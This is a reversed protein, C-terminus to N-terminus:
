ADRYGGQAQGTTRAAARPRSPFPAAAVLIEIGKVLLEAEIQTVKVEVIRPQPGYFSRVYPGWEAPTLKPWDHILLRWLPAGTIRGARFVFWKHRAVYSAYRPHPMLRNTRETM